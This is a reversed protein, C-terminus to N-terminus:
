DIISLIYFYLCGHQIIDAPFTVTSNTTNEFWYIQINLKAVGHCEKVKSQNTQTEGPM